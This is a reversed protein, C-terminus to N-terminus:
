DGWGLRPLLPPGLGWRRPSRHSVRKSLRAHKGSCLPFAGVRPAMSSALSAGSVCAPHSPAVQTDSQPITPTTTPCLSSLCPLIGGSPACQTYVCPGCLSADEEPSQGTGARPSTCMVTCGRGGGEWSPRPGPGPGTQLSILTVQPRSHWLVSPKQAGHKDIMQGPMWDPPGAGAHVAEPFCRQDSLDPNWHLLLQQLLLVARPDCQGPPFYGLARRADSLRLTRM